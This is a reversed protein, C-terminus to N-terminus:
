KDSEKDKKALRFFIAGVANGLFGVFSIVKMENAISSLAFFTIFIILWVTTSAPSRLAARLTKLIPLAGILILLAATGSLVAGEGRTVWLPFYSLTAAIPPAASILIGIAFFIRRKIALSM